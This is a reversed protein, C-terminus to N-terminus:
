RGKRRKGRGGDVLHAHPAGRPQPRRADRRKLLLLALQSHAELGAPVGTPLHPASTQVHTRHPFPSPLLPPIIELCLPISVMESCDM